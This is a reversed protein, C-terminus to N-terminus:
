SEFILGRRSEMDPKARIRPTRGATFFGQQYFAAPKWPEFSSAQRPLWLDRGIALPSFFHSLFVSTLTEQGGRFSGPFM